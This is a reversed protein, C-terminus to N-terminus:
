HGLSDPFAPLGRVKTTDSTPISEVVEQMEPEEKEEVEAHWAHQLEHVVHRAFGHAAKRLARGEPLTM